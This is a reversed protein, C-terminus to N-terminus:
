PLTDRLIRYVPERHTQDENLLQHRAGEIRHMQANPFLRQLIALNQRWAVVTDNTGQLVTVNAAPLPAWDEVREQWERLEEFWGLPVSRVRMPNRRLMRMTEPDHSVPRQVRPVRDVFPDALAHGLESPGTAWSRILPALLVVGELRPPPSHDRWQNLLTLVAAAGTSHAVLWLPRATDASATRIVAALVDAYIQFDDVAAPDGDSLGHGPMDYVVVTFGWNTFTRIARSHLASHDLYGHLLVVTGRPTRNPTFRQVAINLRSTPVTGIRHVLGQRPLEFYEVYRRQAPTLTGPTSESWPPLEQRVRSCVQALAKTEQRDDRTGVRHVTCCGLLLLGIVLLCVLLWKRRDRIM